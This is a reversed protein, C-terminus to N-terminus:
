PGPCLGAPSLPEVTAARKVTSSEPALQGPAQRESGLGRGESQGQAAEGWSGCAGSDRRARSGPLPARTGGGAEHGETSTRQKSMEGCSCDSAREGRWEARLLM